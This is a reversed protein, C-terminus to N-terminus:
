GRDPYWGFGLITYLGRHNKGPDFKVVNQRAVNQREFAKAGMSYHNWEV